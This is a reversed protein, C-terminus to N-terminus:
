FQFHPLSVKFNFRMRATAPIIRIRDMYTIAITEAKESLGLELDQSIAATKEVTITGM